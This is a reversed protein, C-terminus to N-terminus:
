VTQKRKEEKFVQWSKTFPVAVIVLTVALFFIMAAPQPLFLTGTIIILGGWFFYKGAVQHTIKWNYESELAWPTRFGAFYNQKLQPMYNGILTFLLGVAPFIFRGYLLKGDKSSQIILLSFLCLFAITVWAIKILASKRTESSKKPDIRNINTLLLWLAISIGSMILTSFWLTSKAGFQDPKGALGFHTAVTEPLQNYIFSLYIVPIAALLLVLFFSKKM